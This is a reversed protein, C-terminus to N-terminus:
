KNVNSPCPFDFIYVLGEFRTCFLQFIPAETIISSKIQQYWFVTYLGSPPCYCIFTRVLNSQRFDYNQIKNLFQKFEFQNNIGYQLLNSDDFYQFNNTTADLSRSGTMPYKFRADNFGLNLENTLMDIKNLKLDIKLTPQPLSLPWLFDLTKLENIALGLYRLNPFRTSGDSKFFVDTSIYPIRNKTFNLSEYQAAFIQDFDTGRLPTAILNNSFDITKLATLCGLSNFVGTLSTLNNLSMDLIDVYRFQCIQTLPVTTYVNPSLDLVNFKTAQALFESPIPPNRATSNDCNYVFVNRWSASALSYQSSDCAAEILNNSILFKIFFLILFHRKKLM